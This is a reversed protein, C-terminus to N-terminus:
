CLQCALNDGFCFPSNAFGTPSINPLEIRGFIASQTTSLAAYGVGNQISNFNVYNVNHSLPM